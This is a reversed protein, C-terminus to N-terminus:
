PTSEAHEHIGFAARAERTDSPTILINVGVPDAGSEVYVKSYVAETILADDTYLVNSLADEVARALKLVDPKGAHFRPASEKLAGNKRYHSQPRPLFFTMSAKIPEDILPLGDRMQAVIGAIVARWEKGKQGSDDSVAVGLKGDKRRFPFARKSGAPKPVGPVFVSIFFESM